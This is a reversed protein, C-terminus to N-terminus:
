KVVTLSHIHPFREREMHHGEEWLPIKRFNWSKVMLSRIFSRIFTHFDFPFGGRDRQMEWLPIERIEIEVEEEEEEEEESHKKVVDGGAGGLTYVSFKIEKM